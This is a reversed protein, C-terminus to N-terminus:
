IPLPSTQWYVIEIKIIEFTQDLALPLKFCSDGYVGFYNIMFSNDKLDGSESVEVRGGLGNLVDLVKDGDKILM